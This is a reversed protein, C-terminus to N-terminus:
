VAYRTLICIVFGAIRRARKRLFSLISDRV